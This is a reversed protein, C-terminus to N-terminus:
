RLIVDQQESVPLDSLSHEARPTSPSSYTEYGLRYLTKKLEEGTHGSAELTGPHIEIILVPRRKEIMESAGRLFPIESGEVDLKLVLRGPYDEWDAMEDFKRMPVNIRRSEHTASHGKYIGASGSTDTPVYLTVEGPVDGLALQHVEHSSVAEQLSQRVLGSLRPQPEFACVHGEPGVLHSAVVAFSGHNAGVDIFTDGRDLLIELVQTDTGKVENIVQIFRPDMLDLFVVKDGVEIRCVEKLSLVKTIKRVLGFVSIEDPTNKLNLINKAYVYWALLRYLLPLQKTVETDFVNILKRKKFIWKGPSKYNNKESRVIM